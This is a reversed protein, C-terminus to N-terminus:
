GPVRPIRVIVRATRIPERSRRIKSSPMSLVDSSRSNSMSRVSAAYYTNGFGSMGLNAAYLVGAGACILALAIGRWHLRRAPTAAPRATAIVM